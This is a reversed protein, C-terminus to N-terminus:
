FKGMSTGVKATANQSSGSFFRLIRKKYSFLALKQNNHEMLRIDKILIDYDSYLIIEFISLNDLFEDPVAQEIRKIFESLTEGRMMHWGNLKLLKLTALGALVAKERENMRSYRYNKVLRDIFFFVVLFGLVLAAPVLIRKKIFGLDDESNYTSQGAFNPDSPYMVADNKEFAKDKFSAENNDTVKWGGYHRFGPTPEYEVWGIGELYAEPWAHAETSMVQYDNGSSSFSYGQMYRAPIGEARAMLVFATAFHSCYGSRKDFIIYDLFDAPDNISDPLPGPDTDYNLGSLIQEIRCLKENTSNCGKLEIDLYDKMRESVIVPEGYIDKIHDRYSIFGGFSLEDNNSPLIMKKAMEFSIEDIDTRGDIFKSYGEYSKNLHFTKVSYEEKKNDAFLQDGGKATINNGEKDVLSKYPVFLRSTRIGTSGIHENSSRMYDAIHEPDNKIIAAVTELADYSQYDTESADVKSWERGDFTDFSKGQLYIRGNIPINTTFRLAPYPSSELYGLFSAEDSFGITTNDSDWGNTQDFSQRLMEYRLRTYQLVQRIFPWDYPESPVKITLLCILIIIPFPLLHVLYVMNTSSSERIQHSRIAETATLILYFITMAVVCGKPEFGTILMIILAALLATAIFLKLIKYTQAAKEVIFTLVCIFFVKFLEGNDDILRFLYDKGSVLLLGAIVMSIVGALILRTKPRMHYFAVCIMGSSLCILYMLTESFGSMQTPVIIFVSVLCLPITYIIDYILSYM